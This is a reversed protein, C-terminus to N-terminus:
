AVLLHVISGPVKQISKEGVKILSKERRIDSIMIKAAKIWIYSFLKM